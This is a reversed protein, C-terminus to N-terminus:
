WIVQKFISERAYVNFDNWSKLDRMTENHMVMLLLYIGESYSPQMAPHLWNFRNKITMFREEALPDQHSTKNKKNACLCLLFPLVTRCCWVSEKLNFTKSNFNKLSRKDTLLVRPLDCSSASSERAALKGTTFHARSLVSSGTPSGVDQKYVIRWILFKCRAHTVLLKWGQLNVPNLFFSSRHHRCWWWQTPKSLLSPGPQTLDM